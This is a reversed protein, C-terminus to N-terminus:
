KNMTISCKRHSYVDYILYLFLCFTSYSFCFFLCVSHYCIDCSYLGCFSLSLLPATYVVSLCLCHLLCFLLCISQSKFGQLLINLFLFILRGGDRLLSFQSLYKRKFKELAWPRDIPRDTPKEIPRGTPWTHTWPAIQTVQTMRWTDMARSLHWTDKACTRHGKYNTMHGHCTDKVRTTKWTDHPMHRQHTDHRAIQKVSPCLSSHTCAWTIFFLIDPTYWSQKQPVWRRLTAGYCRTWVM